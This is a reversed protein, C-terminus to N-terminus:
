VSTLVEQAMYFLTQMDFFDTADLGTEKKIKTIHYFITNPHYSLSEATAKRSLGNHALAIIIRAQQKTM